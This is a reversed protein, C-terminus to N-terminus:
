WRIQVGVAMAPQTNSHAGGGGTAVTMLTGTDTATADNFVSVFNAAAGGALAGTDVTVGQSDVIDHQHSPIESTALTHTQAGFKGGLIIGNAGNTSASTIVSAAAGGLNDLAALVHGRVDPLQFKNHVTQTGTGNTTGNVVAGGRTLSLQFDNANKNVVFYVTNATYGTPLAGGANTLDVIDGNLLGHAALAWVDTTNDFTPNGATTGVHGLTSSSPICRKALAAYRTSNTATGVPLLYGDDAATAFLGKYTGPSDNSGSAFTLMWNTTDLARLEVIENTMTRYDRGYPCILSTANHLFQVGSGTFRATFRYGAAASAIATIDVDSSTVDLFDGDPPITLTSSAAQSAGKRGIFNGETELHTGIRWVGAGDNLFFVVDGTLVKRNRSGPTLLTASYNLTLNGDFALWVFPITGTITDINTSGSVHTFIEPGVAITTSSAIVTGEGFTPDTRDIFQWNDLTYLTIGAADTIVIKYLGDAFFNFVGDADAVFPQALTTSMSRDTWIDKLTSTGAAYHYLKAAGNLAGSSFFPGLQSRQAFTSM